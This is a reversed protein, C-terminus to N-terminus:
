PRRRRHDARSRRRPWSSRPRRRMDGSAGTPATRGPHCPSRRASWAHRSRSRCARSAAHSRAHAVVMLTEHDKVVKIPGRTPSRSTSASAIMASTIKSIETSPLRGSAHDTSPTARSREVRSLRGRLSGFSADGLEATRLSETAAADCRPAEIDAPAEGDRDQAVQADGRRREPHLCRRRLAPM